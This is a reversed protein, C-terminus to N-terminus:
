TQHIVRLIERGFRTAKAEGVGPIAALEQLSTPSAAAIARLHKNHLIVFSPYSLEAAKQTCWTRLAEYISMRDAPLVAETEGKASARRKNEAGPEADFEVYLSWFVERPTQVLSPVIKRTKVNALFQNLWSEDAKLASPGLRVKLFKVQRM